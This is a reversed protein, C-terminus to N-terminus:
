YCWPLFGETVGPGLLCETFNALDDFDILEDYNADLLACDTEVLPDLGFCRQFQAFDDLDVDQDEDYDAWLVPIDNILAIEDFVIKNVGASTDGRRFMMKVANIDTLDLGDTGAIASNDFSYDLGDFWVTYTHWEEDDLLVPCRNIYPKTPISRPLVATTDLDLSSALGNTDVLQFQM